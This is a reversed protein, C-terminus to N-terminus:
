EALDLQLNYKKMYHRLNNRIYDSKDVPYKEWAACIFAEVGDAFQSSRAVSQIATLAVESNDSVMYEFYKSVKQSFNTDHSAAYLANIVVSCETHQFLHEFNEVKVAQLEKLIYGVFRVTDVHQTEALRVLITSKFKALNGKQYWFILQLGLNIRAPEHSEIAKMLYDSSVTASYKALVELAKTQYIRCADINLIATLQEIGEESLAPLKKLGELAALKNKEDGSLTFLDFLYVENGGMRHGFWGTDYQQIVEDLWREYWDLFHNEYVFFYATPSDCWDHTYILRGAHEGTVVLLIDYTCGCTGLYFLGQHLLSERSDYEEDTCDDAMQTLTQWEEDSMTPSLVSPLAVSDYRSESDEFREIGYYPGAGGNGLQTMFTVYEHPLQVAMRHQWQEIREIDLPPNLQYNHSDAGFLAEDIDVQQALPLKQKIRQIQDDAYCQNINQWTQQLQQLPPSLHNM